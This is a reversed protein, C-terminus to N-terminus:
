SPAPNSVLGTPRHTKTNHQLQPPFLPNPRLQAIHLSGLCILLLAPAAQTKRIGRPIAVPYKNLDTLRVVDVEITFVGRLRNRVVRM